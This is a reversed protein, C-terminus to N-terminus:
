RKVGQKRMSLPVGVKDPQQLLEVYTFGDWVIAKDKPPGKSAFMPQACTKFDSLYPEFGLDM